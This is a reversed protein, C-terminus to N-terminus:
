EFSILVAGSTKTQDASLIKLGQCRLPCGGFTEKLDQNTSQAKLQAIVNGSNDKVVILDNITPQTFRIEKVVIPSDTLGFMSTGVNVDSSVTDIYAVNGKFSNAM